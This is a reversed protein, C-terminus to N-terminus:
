RMLKSWILKAAIKLAAMNDQGHQKSYDTYFITVPVETFTLQKKHVQELIESCHAMGRQTIEIHQAAKRTLARFGSQPDKTKVGFFATMFVRGFLLLTKRLFPISSKKELFRSGFSVDAAGKILPRIVPKIDEARMQGDADFHVIIDAGQSLAYETGTRLAAGQGRNVHHTLVIAGAHQSSKTTTDKSGDDVVIINDYNNKRLDNLVFPISKEENYAPVVVFIKPEM